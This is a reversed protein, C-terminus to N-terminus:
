GTPHLELLEPIGAPPSISDETKKAAEFLERHTDLATQLANPLRHSVFQDAGLIAHAIAKSSSGGHCVIAVGRIGLLPAGGHESYEMQQTARRFAPSLPLSCLQHLWSTHISEKLFATLTEVVGEGVKLVLNGTFGDCVVVDVVGSFIDRGEIYGVYEFRHPYNQFLRHAERTLKTGKWEEIGNSLIGVRPTPKNQLCEVVTSGMVAFQVLNLPRCTVNAGIDLLVSQGKRTPFTTLIAPRDVNELRKLVVVGCAMMAGSNGASVMADAEGSKLLSMAVHMSADKKRRVAWSPADEMTIVQSAHRIELPLDSAGRRKLESKLLSEDGILLVRVLGSSAAIIAGEIEVHPALDGGMADVAVTFM